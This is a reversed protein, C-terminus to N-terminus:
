ANGVTPEDLKARRIKALAEMIEEDSLDGLGADTVVFEKPLVSAVVRLYEAPREIRVINIVGAGHEAFDKALADVFVKQLRNRSGPLRGGAGGGEGTGKLFRGADDRAM